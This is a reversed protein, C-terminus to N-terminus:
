AETKDDEKSEEESAVEKLEEDLAAVNEESKSEAITPETPLAAHEVLADCDPHCPLDPDTECFSSCPDPSM